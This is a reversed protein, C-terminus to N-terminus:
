AIRVPLGLFDAYREFAAGAYDQAQVAGLWGVVEAPTGLKWGSLRQNHLRLRPIDPHNM